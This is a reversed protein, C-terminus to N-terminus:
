DARWRWSRTPSSTSSCQRSCCFRPLQAWSGTSRPPSVRFTRARQPFVFQSLSWTVLGFIILWSYHVGVEIGRITFLRVSNQLMLPRYAVRAVGVKPSVTLESLASEAVPRPSSRHRCHAYRQRGVVCAERQLIRYGVPQPRGAVLHDVEADIGGLRRDVVRVDDRRRRAGHRRAIALQPMTRPPLPVPSCITALLIRPMRQTSAASGTVARRPRSCLSALTIAIPARIMPRSTASAQTAANMVASNWPPRCARRTSM